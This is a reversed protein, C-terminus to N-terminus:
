AVQATAWFFLVVGGLLWLLISVHYNRRCRAVLAFLGARWLPRPRDRNRRDVHRGGRSIDELLRSKRGAIGLCDLFHAIGPLWIVGIYSAGSEPRFLILFAIACFVVGIFTTAYASITRMWPTLQSIQNHQM